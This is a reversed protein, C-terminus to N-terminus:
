IGGRGDESRMRVLLGPPAWTGWGARVCRAPRVWWGPVGADGLVEVVLRVPGRCVLSAGGSDKRFDAQGGAGVARVESKCRRWGREGEGRGMRVASWRPECKKQSSSLRTTPVGLRGEMWGWLRQEWGMTVFSVYKQGEDGERSGLRELYALHGWCRM